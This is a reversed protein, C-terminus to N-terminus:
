CIKQVLSVIPTRKKRYRLERRRKDILRALKKALRKKRLDFSTLRVVKIGHYDFIQRDRNKDREKIDFFNHWVEGDAEIALKMKPLYFDLWYYVKHGNKGIYGPFRREHFFSKGEVFGMRLLEDRIPAENISYVKPNRNNRSAKAAIIRFRTNWDLDPSATM